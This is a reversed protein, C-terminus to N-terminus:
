ALEFEQVEGMDTKMEEGLRYSLRWRLKIANVKRSKDNAHWVEMSQVVGRTQQPELTRGSQPQLKL